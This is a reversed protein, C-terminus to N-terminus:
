LDDNALLTMEDHSPAWKNKNKNKCTVTDNPNYKKRLVLAWLRERDVWYSEANDASSPFLFFAFLKNTIIM